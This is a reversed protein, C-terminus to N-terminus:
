PFNVPFSYIHKAKISNQTTTFNIYIEDSVVVTVFWGPLKVDALERRTHDVLVTRRQLSQIAAIDQVSNFHPAINICRSYVAYIQSLQFVAHHFGTPIVSNCTQKM